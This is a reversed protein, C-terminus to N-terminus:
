NSATSQFSINGRTFSFWALFLGRGGRAVPHHMSPYARLRLHTKRRCRVDRRLSCAATDVRLEQRRHLAALPRHLLAHSARPINSTQMASVADTAVCGDGDGRIAATRSRWLVIDAWLSVCSMYDSNVIRRTRGNHSCIDISSAASIIVYSIVPKM